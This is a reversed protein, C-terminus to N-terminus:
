HGWAYTFHILALQDMFGYVILCHWMFALSTRQTTSLGHWAGYAQRVVQAPVFCSSEVTSYLKALILPIRVTINSGWLSISPSTFLTSTLPVRASFIWTFGISALDLLFQFTSTFISVYPQSSVEGESLKHPSNKWVLILKPMLPDGAGM